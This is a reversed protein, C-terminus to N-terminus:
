NWYATVLSVQGHSASCPESHYRDSANASPARNMQLQLHLQVEGVQHALHLVRHCRFRHRQGCAAPRPDGMWAGDHDGGPCLSHLSNNQQEVQAGSPVPRIPQRIRSPNQVCKLQQNRGLVNWSNGSVPREPHAAPERASAACATQTLIEVHDFGALGDVWRPPNRWPFPERSAQGRLCQSSSSDWEFQTRM